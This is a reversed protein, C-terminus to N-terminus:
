ELSELLSSLNRNRSTKRYDLWPDSIQSLRKFINKVTYSRPHLSERTIEDARLPTAIPAGPIARVSYISVSTQAYANRAIDLYVKGERKNKRQQTTLLEPHLDELHRAVEKLEERVQDFTKGRRLPLVLHFGSSGTTTVFVPFYPSLTQYVRQVAKKVIDPNDESPDLDIVARDPEDLRDVKSLWPHFVLCGQNVLYLLSDVDNIQVLQQQEDDTKKEVEIRDIWSPFYDPVQKQYFGEGEIGDPFRQLTVPRDQLYLLMRDAIKRYYDLIDGKSLGAEPFYLKDTHSFQFRATM